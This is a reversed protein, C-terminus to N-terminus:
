IQQENRLLKEREDALEPVAGDGCPTEAAPVFSYNAHRFPDSILTRHREMRELGERIDRQVMELKTEGAGSM